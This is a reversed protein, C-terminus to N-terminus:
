KVFCSCVGEFGSLRCMGPVGEILALGMCYFWVFLKMGMDMLVDYYLVVKKGEVIGMHFQRVFLMLVEVGCRRGVLGTLVRHELM